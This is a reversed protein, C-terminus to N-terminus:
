FPLVLPWGNGHTFIDLVADGVNLGPTNYFFAVQCVLLGCRHICFSYCMIADSIFLM